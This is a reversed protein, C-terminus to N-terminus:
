GGFDTAYTAGGGGTPADNAVGIGILRFSRSLINARHPASRMWSRVMARPAALSGSGWGINEGVTYSRRSKMWGTRKIRVDFTTGNLSEHAFFHRAVMDNAHGGAARALKTDLRLARLGHARRQGNILCLTTHNVAAPSLTAPLSDAGSCGAASAMAPAASAASVALVSTVAIRTAIRRM